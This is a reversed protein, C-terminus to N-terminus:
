PKVVWTALIEANEILNLIHQTDEAGDLTGVEDIYDKVQTFLKERDILNIIM